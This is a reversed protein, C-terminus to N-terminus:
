AAKALPRQGHNYLLNFDAALDIIGHLRDKPGGIMSISDDDGIVTLKDKEPRIIAEVTGAYRDVMMYSGNGTASIILHRKRKPGTEYGYGMPNMEAYAAPTQQQSMRYAMDVNDRWLKTLFYAAKDSLSADDLIGTEFPTRVYNGFRGQVDKVHRRLEMRYAADM